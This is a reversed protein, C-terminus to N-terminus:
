RGTRIRHVSDALEAGAASKDLVFATGRALTVHQSNVGTPLDALVAGRRGDVVTTTGTGRNAM